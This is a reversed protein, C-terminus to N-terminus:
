RSKSRDHLLLQSRKYFVMARYPLSHGASSSPRFHEIDLMNPSSLIADLTTRPFTRCTPRTTASSPLCYGYEVSSGIQEYWINLIEALRHWADILGGSTLRTQMKYGLIDVIQDITLGLGYHFWSTMAIVQHGLQAKPMADPVIPEVHKDCHPCYDRHITHETVVPEIVEPIDEIIRTRSQQCRQLARQCHPCCKLRHSKREDIKVPRTRRVGEHGIKAGSKKRRKSVNPKTYIPIMGSPTSPTAVTASGALALQDNQQALRRGAALLALIIVEPHDKCLLLTDERSLQGRIAADIIENALKVTESKM